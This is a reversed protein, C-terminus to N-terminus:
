SAVSWRATIATSAARVWESEVSDKSLVLLLKERIRITGYITDRIRERYAHSPARVLVPHRCIVTVESHSRPGPYKTRSARNRGPILPTSLDTNLLRTHAFM